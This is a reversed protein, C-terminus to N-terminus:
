KNGTVTESKCCSYNKRMVMKVFLFIAALGVLTYVGRVVMPWSGLVAQVLDWQFVGVLGWNLGGVLLLLKSTCTVPCDRCCNEM